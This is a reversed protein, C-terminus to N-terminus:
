HVPEAPQDQPSSSRGNPVTPTVASQSKHEEAEQSKMRHAASNRVEEMKAFPKALFHIRIVGRLFEPCGVM